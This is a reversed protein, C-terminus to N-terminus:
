EDTIAKEISKLRFGFNWGGNNTCSVVVRKVSKRNIEFSMGGRFTERTRKSSRPDFVPARNCSVKVAPKRAEHM